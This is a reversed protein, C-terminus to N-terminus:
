LRARLEMIGRHVGALERQVETRLREIAEANLVVGEAVTQVDHRLAEATVDFHRRTAGM